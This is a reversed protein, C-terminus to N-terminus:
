PNRVPSITSQDPPQRSGQDTVGLFERRFQWHERAVAPDGLHHTTGATMWVVEDVVQLLYEAQHGTIVIACGEQGMARYARMIREQDKPDIGRLPEDAVVCDPELLWTLAVSARRQEGGSLTHPAQALCGGLELSEIM